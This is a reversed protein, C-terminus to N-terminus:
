WPSAPTNRRTPSDCSRERETVSTGIAFSDGLAVYRLAPLGPDRTVPPALTTIAPTPPSNIWEPYSASYVSAARRLTDSIDSM